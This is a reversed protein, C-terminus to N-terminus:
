APFDRHTFMPEVTVSQGVAGYRGCVKYTTGGIDVGDVFDQANTQQTTNRGSVMAERDSGTGLIQDHYYKFLYIPHNKSTRQTTSYRHLACVELTALSESGSITAAGTGTLTESWVPIESGPDYGIASTFTTRTTLFNVERGKIWTALAEFVAETMDVNVNFYYRNSWTKVGGKYATEKSVKVSVQTAPPITM